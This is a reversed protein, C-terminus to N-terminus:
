ATGEGRIAEGLLWEEYAADRQRLRKLRSALSDMLQSHAAAMHGVDCGATDDAVAEDLRRKAPLTLAHHMATPAPLLAKPADVHAGTTGHVVASWYGGRSPARSVLPGTPSVLVSTEKELQRLSTCPVVAPVEVRGDLQHVADSM